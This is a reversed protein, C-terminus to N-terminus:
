QTKLTFGSKEVKKSKKSKPGIIEGLGSSIVDDLGRAVVSSPGSGFGRVHPPMVFVESKSLFDVLCGKNERVKGSKKSKPGIIEGFGLSILAEFGRAAVSCPSSGLGRM